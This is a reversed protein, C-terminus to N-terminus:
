YKNYGGKKFNKMMKGFKKDKRRKDVASTEFYAKERMMRQYNTYSAEDLDGGELAELVACGLESLHKCDKFRCQEALESISEFTMGIGEAADAIGVERMGPNDILIGGGPLFHMERHTTVHKGRNISKSIASTKMVENGILKNVLTSKGVGSSGLLCSTKGSSILKQVKDIGILTEASIAIVDVEAHRHKVTNILEDLQQAELLDVKSLLVIPRVGGSHCITLYREIRNVSFDRDVAQVLFAYDINAAIIQKEGHKGVSQRELCSKRPYIAHILARDDYLSIAVWDGVSPFDARSKATFRLNGLIEAEYEGEATKVEYREKHEAIVRAVKFTDLSNEIRYNELFSTYGIDELTM